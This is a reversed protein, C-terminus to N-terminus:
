GSKRQINGQIHKQRDHTELITRSTNQRIQWNNTSYFPLKFTCWLSHLSILGTNYPAELTDKEAAQCSWKPVATSM